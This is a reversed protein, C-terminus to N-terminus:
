RRCFHPARGARIGWDDPDPEESITFGVSPKGPSTLYRMEESGSAPVAHRGKAAKAVKLFAAAKRTVTLM